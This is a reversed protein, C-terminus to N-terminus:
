GPPNNESNLTARLAAEASALERKRAMIAKDEALGDLTSSAHECLESAAVCAIKRLRIRERVKKESAQSALVLERIIGIVLALGMMWIVINLAYDLPLEETTSKEPVSPDKEAPLDSLPEAVKQAAQESLDPEAELSTEESDDEMPTRNLKASLLRLEQTRDKAMQTLAAVKEAEETDEAQWLTEYLAGRERTWAQQQRRLAEDELPNLEKLVERYTQNLKTEASRFTPYASKIEGYRADPIGEASASGSAFTFLCVLWFCFCLRIM